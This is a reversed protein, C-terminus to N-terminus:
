TPAMLALAECRAAVRQAAGTDRPAPHRAALAQASQRLGGEGFLRGIASLLKPGAEGVGLAVGAGCAVVRRTTLLQEAHMPLLLLPLGAQLATLVTGSSAHCLVARATALAKAWSVAGDSFRLRPSAFRQRQAASLGPVHALTRCPAAALQQLVADLAAYDGKLYAFLSEGAGDPWVAALGEARPPLVGWYSASPRGQPGPSYPDLEPWTLLFREDAATLEHLAALVATGDAALAANCTALARAEAQALRHPDIAEWERFSPLPQLAPPLFFGNGILARRLPRGRAALLATPAHDALLLDPKLVDLLSQWAQVLGRLRAADLYGAHFLLEAYSAPPQSAQYQPLWVPAQWLHVLPSAALAGLAARAGSLDRLAFHVEHGRAVLPQAVQALPVLHGMGAGLEWAFLFRAVAEAARVRSRPRRYWRWCPM